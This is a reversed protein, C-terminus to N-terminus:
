AMSAQEHTPGYARNKWRNIEIVWIDRYGIDGEEPEINSAYHIFREDDILIAQNEALTTRFLVERTQPDIVQTEGGKVNNRKAIAIVSFEHGDRHPGEPVTVGKYDANVTVRIQNVNIQFMQTLDVPLEDLVAAILMTPDGVIQERHRAVGGAEALRIYHASQVYKRQPLPAFVWENAEWYGIYQTLRIERLRGLSHMDRPMDNFSNLLSQPVEPMTIVCYGHEAYDHNVSKGLVTTEAVPTMKQGKNPLSSISLPLKM